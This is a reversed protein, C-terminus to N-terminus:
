RHLPQNHHTAPVTELTSFTTSRPSPLRLSVTVEKLRCTALEVTCHAAPMSSRGHSILMAVVSAHVAWFALM